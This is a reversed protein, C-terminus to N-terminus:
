SWPRRPRAHLRPDRQVASRRTLAHAKQHTRLGGGPDSLQDPHRRRKEGRYLVRLATSPTLHRRQRNRGPDRDSLWLLPHSQCIRRSRAISLPLDCDRGRRPLDGITAPVPGRQFQATRRLSSEPVLCRYARFCPRQGDPCHAGPPPDGSGPERVRTSADHRHIRPHGCGHLSLLRGLDPHLGMPRRPQGIGM